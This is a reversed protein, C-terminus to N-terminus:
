RATSRTPRRLRRRDPAQRRGSPRARRDRRRVRQGSTPVVITTLMGITTSKGAGNPGLLGFFEGPRVELDVGDVARIEGGHAHYIKTLASVRIPFASAAAGVGHAAATSQEAVSMAGMM